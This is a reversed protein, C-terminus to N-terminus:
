REDRGGDTAEQGDTKLVFVYELRSFDVVPEVELTLSTEWDPAEFSRIRGIYLGEPYVDSLGSTIVLDGYSVNEKARKKVYEMFVRDPDGGGRVLGEHRSDRMRAAVYCSRDVIPLVKASGPATEVVRGVLGQFGKTYAVVPHDQGV